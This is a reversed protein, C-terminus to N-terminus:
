RGMHFCEGGTLYLDRRAIPEFDCFARLEIVSTGNVNECNEFTENVDPKYVDLSCEDYGEDGYKACDLTHDCLGQSDKYVKRTYYSENHCDYETFHKVPFGHQCYASSFPLDITGWEDLVFGFADVKSIWIFTTSIIALTAANRFHLSAMM